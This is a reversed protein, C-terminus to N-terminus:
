AAAVVARLEEVSGVTLGCSFGSCVVAFSGAQKPLSPITEALAPPLKGVERLRVVSNGVRWGRLAAREM